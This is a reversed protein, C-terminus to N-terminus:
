IVFKVYIIIPSNDRVLLNEPKIDRHVVNLSHLYFLASALNRTMMSAEKESFKTASALADFLDGGQVFIL